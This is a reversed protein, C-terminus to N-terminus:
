TAPRLLRRRVERWTRLSRNRWGTLIAVVRILWWPLGYRRQDRVLRLTRRFGGEVRTVALWSATWQEWRVADPLRRAFDLAEIRERRRMQAAVDPNSRTSRRDMRAATVAVVLAIAVCEAPFTLAFERAIVVRRSSLLFTGGVDAVAISRVERAIRACRRPAHSSLLEIAGRICASADGPADNDVTRDEIAISASVTM